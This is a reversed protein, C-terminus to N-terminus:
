EVICVAQANRYRRYMRTVPTTVSALGVVFSYAENDEDGAWVANRNFNYEQYKDLDVTTGNKFYNSLAKLQEVKPVKDVGGCQKVVYAWHDEEYSCGKIGYGQDILEECQAKTLYGSGVFPVGYCVGGAKIHCSNALSTVNIAGIDKGSTNPKKFGSTDYLLAICDTGIGSESVSITNNDFQNQTCDPNYAIVGSVGDTFQIAVNQTNWDEHGLNKSNKIDVMEVETGDNGWTVIDPFCSTIEYKDCTKVIKIHKSLENVFDETSSYGALTGQSNMVKLAEGLKRQFVVSATSWAKNQYNNVLNPITLAAVVGIVTITILVEALTFAYRRYKVKGFSKMFGGFRYILGILNYYRFRAFDLTSHTKAVAGWRLFYVCHTNQGM